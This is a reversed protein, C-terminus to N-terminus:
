VPMRASASQQQGLPPACSVQGFSGRLHELQASSLHVICCQWMSNLGASCLDLLLECQAGISSAQLVVADAASGLILLIPACPGCAPTQSTALGWSVASM